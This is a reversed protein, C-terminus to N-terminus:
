GHSRPGPPPGSPGGGSNAASGVTSIAGVGALRPLPTQAILAGSLADLENRNRAGLSRGVQQGQADFLELQPIGNVEYREVENQWRPNDVNLLVVDLEGRHGSEIAEMAPAMSRCAECWDAYFEVVTPRGDKLAVGLDLSQRALRELPAQPHLGGQLAFLLLGLVTAIVALVSREVRGLPLGTPAKAGSAANAPPSPPAGTVTV